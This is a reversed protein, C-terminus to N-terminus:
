KCFSANTMEILKKSVSKVIYMINLCCFSKFKCFWFQCLDLVNCGYLSSSIRQVIFLLSIAKYVEEQSINDPNKYLKWIFYDKESKHEDSNDNYFSCIVIGNCAKSFVLASGNEILTANEYISSELKNKGFFLQIQNTTECMYLKILLNNSRDVVDEFTNKILEKKDKWARHKEKTKNAFIEFKNKEEEIINNINIKFGFIRAFQNFFKM